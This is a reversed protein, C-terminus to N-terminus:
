DEKRNIDLKMLEIKNIQIETEPVVENFDIRIKIINSNSKIEVYLFDYDKGKIVESLNLIIFPDKDDLIKLRGNGLNEIQNTEIKLKNLNIEKKNIFIKNLTKMSNGLSYPIKSLDQAPYEDLMKKQANEIDGYVEQYRDPRIWFELNNEKHM